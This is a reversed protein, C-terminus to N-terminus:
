NEDASAVRLLYNPDTETATVPRLLNEASAHSTSPRLLRDKSSEQRQRQELTTLVSHAADKIRATRGRQTVTTVFPIAHSTGIKDLADLIKMVLQTDNHFLARALNVISTAGLIGYHESSVTPLLEHLAEAAATRVGLNTDWLCEALTGLSDVSKWKGLSWIAMSKVSTSNKRDWYVRAPVFTACFFTFLILFMQIWIIISPERLYSSTLNIWIVLFTSLGMTIWATNKLHKKIIQSTPQSELVQILTSIAADRQDPSMTAMGLVWAATQREATNKSDSTLLLATLRTLLDTNGNHIVDLAALRAPSNPRTKGASSLIVDLDHQSIRPEIQDPM